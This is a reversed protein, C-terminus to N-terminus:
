IERTTSVGARVAFGEEGQLAATAGLWAFSGEFPSFVLGAGTSLSGTTCGSLSAYAQLDSTLFSTGACGFYALDEIRSEFPNEGGGLAYEASMSFRFLRYTTSTCLGAAAESGRDRPAEGTPLRLRGTFCLATGGRVEEYLYKAALTIDGLGAGDDWANDSLWVPVSLGAEMNGSIGTCGQLEALAASGGRHPRLVTGSCGLSLTGYPMLDTTPLSPSGSLGGGSPTSFPMQGTAAALLAALAFLM